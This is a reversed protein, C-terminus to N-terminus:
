EKVNIIVINKGIAYNYALKTGSNPQYTSLSRKNLKRKPPKYQDNYYFVCYNSEDIMAFNRQIYSAKNSNARNRYYIEEDVTQLKDHANGHSYIKEWYESECELTCSEHRCTYAVRQIYPYKVKLETVIDLCLSIFNSRSGLLFRTVGQEVILTEVITKIKQELNKNCEIIRHGLFTCTKHIEM